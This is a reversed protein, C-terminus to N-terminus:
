VQASAHNAECGGLIVTQDQGAAGLLSVAKCQNVLGSLVLKEPYEGAAISIFGGDPVIQIAEYITPADRPVSIDTLVESARGVKVIQRLATCTQAMM